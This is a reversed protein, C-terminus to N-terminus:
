RAARLGALALWVATFAVVIVVGILANFPEDYIFAALLAVNAAIAIAITVPWVPMKYPRDMDPERLRLALAALLTVVVAIQYLSTSTSSLTNYTGTLVFGATIAVTTTLAARPTGNPAVQALSAPFLGGRALAFALRTTGMLGLSTIASVSLVGFLTLATAAGDGMVVALADAAPLDSAAMQGPTLIHLLALNFLVYLAGVAALGGFLSRPLSKAPSELEECYVAIDQWGNYTSVILRMALAVGAIGVPGALPVSPAAAPGATPAGDHMFLGVMVTVLIAGKAASFLIQSEGSVRTGALNLVFFLALAMLAPAAPTLGPLVGLRVVFEGIVYNTGATSVIMALFLTWGAIAGAVRGFAREAYDYPGGASPIAAGLEIYAFASIAAIVGGLVWCATMLWPTHVAGAVLGPTRLIGQGVMSGVVAALGFGVGLIRLLKGSQAM